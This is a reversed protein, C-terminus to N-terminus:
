PLMDSVLNERSLLWVPHRQGPVTFGLHVKNRLNQSSKSQESILVRATAQMVLM